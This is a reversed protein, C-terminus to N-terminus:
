NVRVVKVVWSINEKLTREIGESLTLSASPCVLCTGKFRLSVVGDEISVLEIDGGDANMAPRLRNLAESVEDTDPTMGQM